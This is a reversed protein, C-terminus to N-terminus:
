TSARRGGVMWITLFCGEGHGRRDEGVNLGLEEGDEDTVRGFEVEFHEPDAVREADVGCEHVVAETSWEFRVRM